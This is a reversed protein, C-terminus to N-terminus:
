VAADASELECWGDILPFYLAARIERNPELSQLLKRYSELQGRYQEIKSSFFATESEDKKPASVKYDVVWRIGAEDVFTRDIIAHTLKGEVVGTLALECASHAHDKLLWRGRESALTKGLAAQAKAAAAPLEAAPVGCSALQRSVLQDRQSKDLAIWADPGRTVIRELLDHVLTGIHRQAQSEWGSFLLANEDDQETDSARSVQEVKTFDARKLQPQSWTLPLRRLPLSLRTPDPDAVAGATATFEEGVVPWLTELLSGREPLQEGKSNEKAHGLLHLQRKARTTAVYLLRATELEQKERELQGILRYIPDQESGDRPAIPALLLGFDPHEVWRLLPSEEGRPRRGLGPLIVQDFELGKAKHITMVQLSGDAETDAAAFLKGLGQALLDLDPLDGGEELSELLDFVLSANEVGEFDYCAPGGLALWCSEVLQRLGYRGRGNLGMELIPWLREIRRQGDISLTQLRAQDQLLSPLTTYPAEAVLAHLDDLCLGAWPARLMSLWALRDARHLLARTLAIIDLAVPQQGLLDIDQAQYPIRQERLLRLIQPLHTRSRVLIAVRQQPQTSRAATVLNLVTQAEAQDNRGNFSHICCAPGELPALVAEAVALPVAGSAVDFKGPFITAFSANVWAVIGRQSRFNCQLQLPKLRPGAFGLRGGFTRLFLGVEAERFRYISQMPDGVLFLTRGDGPQWGSCLTELLQYQLWSTDQFEDVLIHELQSDLKLLLESPDHTSCLAQRAKLAIEAFDAQGEARFVLWLEAVLLPLLEILAQLVQWQDGPYSAAPLERCGALQRILEPYAELSVVLARMRRKADEGDKGAPFGCKVTIGREKRLDNASTLLLDAIGQWLPLNEATAGPMWDLDTLTLLPREGQDWLQGSAYRGCFLLEEQYAEPFLGMLQQLREEVLQRLGTELLQRSDSGAMGLLHRLWQDRRRLMDVLMQQLRDMRNDLHALLLAIQGGGPQQSGLRTLLQEAALRYLPEGDEAIEPVGGFRSLWPMKNVLGANFSDITQISLLGPNQLLDWGQRRDQELAQRALDWTRQQHEAEPRQRHAAELTEVLRSRMEAAAKRTFTIALIQQPREVTGLLALFRQILLETKGSGAPAQVIFSRRPDIAASRQQQDTISPLSTM